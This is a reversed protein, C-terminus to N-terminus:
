GEYNGRNERRGWPFAAAALRNACLGKMVRDTSLCLTSHHCQVKLTSVTVTNRQNRNYGSWMCSRRGLKTGVELDRKSQMGWAYTNPEHRDGKKLRCDALNVKTIEMFYRRVLGKERGVHREGAKTTAAGSSRPAGAQPM